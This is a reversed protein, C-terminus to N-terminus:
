AAATSEDYTGNHHNNSPEVLIREAEGRGLAVRAGHIQVIVPGTGYNQLVQVEAGRVFGFTALRALMRRGGQVKIVQARKGTQIQALTATKPSIHARPQM